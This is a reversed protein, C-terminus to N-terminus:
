ATRASPTSSVHSAAVTNGIACRYKRNQVDNAARSLAASEPLSPALSVRHSLESGDM